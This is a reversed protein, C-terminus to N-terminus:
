SRLHPIPHPTCRHSYREALLYSAPTRPLPTSRPGNRM